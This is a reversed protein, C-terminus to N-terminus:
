VDFQLLFPNLIRRGPQMFLELHSLRNSTLMKCGLHQRVLTFQKSLM